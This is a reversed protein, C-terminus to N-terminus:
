GEKAGVLESIHRLDEIPANFFEHSWLWFDDYEKRRYKQCLSNGWIKDWRDQYAGDRKALKRQIIQTLKGREIGQGDDNRAFYQHANESTTFCIPKGDFYITNENEECTSSVPINVQGCISKDKFRRHTIYQM